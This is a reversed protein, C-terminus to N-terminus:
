RWRGLLDRLEGRVLEDQESELAKRLHMAAGEGLLHAMARATACRVDWHPHRLLRDRYEDIWSCDSRSLIDIASKVVEEDSNELGRRVLLLARDDGLGALAELATILVVGDAKGLLDEIADLAREGGIKGLSRLAACRVWPDEDNLSLILSGVSGEGQVEGLGTAAAIRVDPDEDVLAMVLNGLCEPLRLGALATVASRRVLPSEDKVLLALREPDALAAFIRAADRRNDPDPSTSLTRAIAAVKERGAPALRVLADVAGKRVDQESDDLLLRIQDLLGTLGIKGAAVVAANRVSYRNSAMAEGLYPAAGGFGMEGWLYIIFTKEEDDAKSFAALLAAMGGEGMIRFGQLCTRRLREDRCGELLPLAAREDGILALIGVLSERVQRDTTDLSAILDDVCPKGRFGTLQDDVERAYVAPLRGRLRALACAAAERVARVRDQLGELIVPVADRDGVAGLCEIVPRKLLPDAVLPAFVPIPVPEGIRTLAGLVSFRFWVDGTALAEVLPAVARPDGIKGLNEAAAASVNADPDQLAEVLSPISSRDGISGLIDAVFKRVDHDSAKLHDLLLPVSRSELRELAEVASNRLGANDSSALLGILGNLTSDDLPVTLLTNVAEKRVRWSGDGMASFFLERSKALPHRGLSIVAQRREEEDAGTLQTRIHELDGM